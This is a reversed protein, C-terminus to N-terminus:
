LSRADQSDGGCTLPSGRDPRTSGRAVQTVEPLERVQLLCHDLQVSITGLPLAPHHVCYTGCIVQAEPEEETFQSFVGGM